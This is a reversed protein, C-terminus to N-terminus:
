ISTQYFDEIKHWENRLIISIRFNLVCLHINLIINSMFSPVLKALQKLQVLISYINGTLLKWGEFQESLLFPNMSSQKKLIFM